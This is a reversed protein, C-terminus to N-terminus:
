FFQIYVRNRGLNRAQLNLWPCLSSIRCDKSSSAGIVVEKRRVGHEGLFYIYFLRNMRHVIPLDPSSLNQPVLQTM